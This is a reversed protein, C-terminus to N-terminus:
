AEPGLIALRQHLNKAMDHLASWEFFDADDGLQGAHFCQQFQASSMQYRQEFAALSVELESLERRAQAQELTIIKDLTRDVVDSQYGQCYLSELHRLKTLTGNTLTNAQTSM